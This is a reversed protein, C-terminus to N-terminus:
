SALRFLASFFDDEKGRVILSVLVTEEKIMMMM